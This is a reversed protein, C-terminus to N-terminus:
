YLIITFILYACFKFQKFNFYGEYKEARHAERWAPLSTLILWHKPKQVHYWTIRNRSLNVVQLLTHLTNLSNDKRGSLLGCTAHTVKVERGWESCVSVLTRLCLTCTNSSLKPHVNHRTIHWHPAERCFTAQLLLYIDWFRNSLRALFTTDLPLCRVRRRLRWRWKGVVRRRRWTQTETWLAKSIDQDTKIDNWPKSKFNLRQCPSHFERGKRGEYKAVCPM